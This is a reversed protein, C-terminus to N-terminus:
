GRRRIPWVGQKSFDVVTHGEDQLDILIVHPQIQPEYRPQDGSVQVARGLEGPLRAACLKEASFSM